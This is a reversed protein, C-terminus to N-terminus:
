GGYCHYHMPRTQLGKSLYLMINECVFKTSLRQLRLARIERQRLASYKLKLRM